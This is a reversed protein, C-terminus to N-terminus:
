APKRKWVHRVAHYLYDLLSAVTILLVVLMFLWAYPVNVLLLVLLVAQAATTAKGLLRPRVRDTGRLSALFAACTLLIVDRALIFMAFGFPVDPLFDENLALLLFGANMLIKDAIPDIRVGLDSDQHYKRAVIGDLVDSLAAIVFIALAVYRLWDRSPAYFYLLVGFVPILAFRFITIRNAITV